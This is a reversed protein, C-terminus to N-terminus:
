GFGACRLCYGFDGAEETFAVAAVTQDEGVAADHGVLVDQNEGGHAPGVAGWVRLLGWQEFVNRVQRHRPNLRHHLAVPLSHNLYTGVRMAYERVQIVSTISKFQNNYLCVRNFERAIVRWQPRIDDAAQPVALCSEYRVVAGFPRQRM